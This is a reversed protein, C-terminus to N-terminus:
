FDFENEIDAKRLGNMIHDVANTEPFWKGLQKRISGAGFAFPYSKRMEELQLRAEALRGLQGLPLAQVMPTWFLGPTNVRKAETLAGEYEEKRYHCYWPVFHYWGPHHPNLKMFRRVIELGRQPRGAFTMLMGLYGCATGAQPNISMAREAAPYFADFDRSHFYIAALDQWGMQSASDLDVARWAAQRSRDLSIERPNIL